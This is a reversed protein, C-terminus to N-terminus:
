RYKASSENASHIEETPSVVEGQPNREAPGSITEMSIESPFIMFNDNKMIM